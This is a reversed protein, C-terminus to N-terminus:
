PPLSDYDDIAFPLDLMGYGSRAATAGRAALWECAADALARAAAVRGPLSEFMVVHGLPENWHRVYREDFVAMARAVIQGGERVVLPHIARGALYPSAPALVSLE